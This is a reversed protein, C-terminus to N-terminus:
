GQPELLSLVMDKASQFIVTGDESYIYTPLSGDWRAMVCYGIGDQTYVAESWGDYGEQPANGFITVDRGCVTKEEQRIAGEKEYSYYLGQLGAQAAEQSLPITISGTIPGNTVYHDLQYSVVVKTPELIGKQADAQTCTKGTFIRVQLGMYWRDEAEKQIADRIEEPVALEIGLLEEVDEITEYCKSVEQGNGYSKVFNEMFFDVDWADFVFEAEPTPDHSNVYYEQQTLNWHRQLLAKIEAMNREPLKVVELPMQYELKEFELEGDYDKYYGLALGEGSNTEKGVTWSIGAAAAYVSAALSAAIAVAAAVRRIPLTKRSGGANEAELLLGEDIGTLARALEHNGKM